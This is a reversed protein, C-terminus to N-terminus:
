QKQGLLMEIMHADFTPVGVVNYVDYRESFSDDIFIASKETIYASKKEHEKLVNISTFLEENLYVKQLTKQINNRHRTLLHIKKNMNKSEYLFAIVMVNLKGRNIILDDFDIYIHEYTLQLKYAGYLARDVQVKYNNHCIVIDYNMADFVSLLPLNVGKARSVGSTGAIRAAVELLKLEGNADEKLQFFWGGRFILKSNIKKALAQFYPKDITESNVSIGNSIRQRRRAQCYQISGHRDTFCDVTYEDGPLYECVLMNRATAHLESLEDVNQVICIGKSGQGIDPKAFVPFDHPPNEMSFVAPTPIIDALVEHTLKKSRAIRCTQAPPAIVGCALKNNEAAEALALVVSDHAPYLFDISYKKVLLNINNIFNKHDVPLIDSIYNEYVYEGHDSVSSGGYLEIHTSYCLARHVELGIESGCPFVLVKTRM